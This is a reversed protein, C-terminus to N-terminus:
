DRRSREFPSEYSQDRAVVTEPDIRLLVMNEGWEYPDGFRNEDWREPDDGLYRSLLREVRDLDLPEIRARGRMGVHQVLGTDRDFDVIAVDARPDREIRAPYTKDTNAIIRIAGDEWLYWLPTVRPAGSDAVTGLFCFLPRELFTELDVPLTNEVIEM